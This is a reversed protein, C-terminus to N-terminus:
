IEYRNRGSDNILAQFESWPCTMAQDFLALQAKSPGFYGSPECGLRDALVAMRTEDLVALGNFESGILGMANYAGFVLVRFRQGNKFERVQDRTVGMYPGVSPFANLIDM